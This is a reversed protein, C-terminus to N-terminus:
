VNSTVAVSLTCTPHLICRPLRSKRSDYCHSWHMLFHCCVAADQRCTSWGANTGLSPWTFDARWNEQGTCELLLFM